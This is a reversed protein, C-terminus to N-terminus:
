QATVSRTVGVFLPQMGIVALLRLKEASETGPESTNMLLSHSQVPDHLVQCDLDMTGVRSHSFRKVDDFRLSIQQNAWLM